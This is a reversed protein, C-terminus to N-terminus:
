GAPWRKSSLMRAHRMVPGPISNSPRTAARAGAACYREHARRVTLPLRGPPMAAGPGDVWREAPECRARSRVGHSSGPM